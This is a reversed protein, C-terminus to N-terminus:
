ADAPEKGGGAVDKNSSPFKYIKKTFNSSTYVIGEDVLVEAAEVADVEEIMSSLYRLIVAEKTCTPIGKFRSLLIHGIMDIESEDLSNFAESTKKDGSNKMNNVADKFREYCLVSPTFLLNKKTETYNEVSEMHGCYYITAATVLVDKHIGDFKISKVVHILKSTAELIGGQRSFTGAVTLPSKKFMDTNGITKCAVYQLGIPLKNLTETIEKWCADLDVASKPAFDDISIDNGDYIECPGLTYVARGKYNDSEVTAKVICPTDFSLLTNFHNMKQEQGNLDRIVATQYTCNKGKVDTINKILLPLVKTEGIPIESIVM